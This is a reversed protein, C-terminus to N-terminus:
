KLAEFVVEALGPNPAIVWLVREGERFVLITGEEGSWTPQEEIRQSDSVWRMDAYQTLAFVFEDADLASDWVADLVFIVEDTLDNLYIAYADGGWGEAAKRALDDDLRYDGDYAQSLILYTSWEGMVNQDILKWTEGLTSELEPLAVQQPQDWPYREPHLIQETSVPPNLFAADISDFGNKEFLFEVFTFGYEYPFMLDMQVYSPANDYVPSEFAEYTKLFDMYESRTAHTQFWLSETWSADGEILAQIAACRESDLECAEDTYNLDEEFRFTQDQLVHTFEHAYIMKESIGFVNGGVVFIENTQSDYFGSIQESYLQHYFIKLDFDAPLLGLLAMIIVDQRADEDTYEAFFDNVVLDELAESTMLVKPVEELLTLGRLQSVQGEIELMAAATTNPLSTTNEPLDSGSDGPAEVNTTDAPGSSPFMSIAIKDFNIPWLLSIGFGSFIILSICLCTIILVVACSIIINRNSNSKM